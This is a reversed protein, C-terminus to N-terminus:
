ILVHGARDRPHRKGAAKRGAADGRQERKLILRRRQGDAPEAASDESYMKRNNRIEPCRRYRSEGHLGHLVNKLFSEETESPLGIRM